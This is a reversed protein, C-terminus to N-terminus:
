AVQQLFLESVSKIRIALDADRRSLVRKCVLLIHQHPVHGLLCDDLDQTTRVHPISVRQRAAADLAADALHVDEDCRGSTKDIM